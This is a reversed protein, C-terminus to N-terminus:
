VGFSHVTKRSEFPYCRYRQFYLLIFGLRRMLRGVSVESLRVDFQKLILQRIMALTWLAYEFKLQM